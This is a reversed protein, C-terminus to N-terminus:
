TGGGGMVDVFGTSNCIASHEKHAHSRQTLNLLEFNQPSAEILVGSWGFCKELLWTQSGSIGDYAGLETFTGPRGTTAVAERLLPLLVIDENSRSERIVCRLENHAPQGSTSPDHKKHAVDTKSATSDTINPSRTHAAHALLLGVVHFSRAFLASWM